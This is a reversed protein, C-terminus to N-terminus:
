RPDYRYVGTELLTGTKDALVAEDAHMPRADLDPFRLAAGVILAVAVLLLATRVDRPVAMAAHM